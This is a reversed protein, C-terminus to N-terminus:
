VVELMTFADICATIGSVSRVEGGGAWYWRMRKVGQEVVGDRTGEGEEISLRKKRKPARPTPKMTFSRNVQMISMTLVNSSSRM